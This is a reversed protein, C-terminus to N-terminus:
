LTTGWICVELRGEETSSEAGKYVHGRERVMLLGWGEPVRLKERMSLALIERLFGVPPADPRM